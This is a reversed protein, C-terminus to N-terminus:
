VRAHAFGTDVLAVLDFREGLTEVRVQAPDAHRCRGPPQLDIGSRGRSRVGIGPAADQRGLALRSRPATVSASLVALSIASCSSTMAVATETGTSSRRAQPM